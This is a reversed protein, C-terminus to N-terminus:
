RVTRVTTQEFEYHSYSILVKFTRQCEVHSLFRFYFKTASFTPPHCHKYHRCLQQAHVLLCVTCIEDKYNGCYNIFLDHTTERPEKLLPISQQGTRQQM